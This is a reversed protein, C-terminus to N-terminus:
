DKDELDHALPANKQVFEVIPTPDPLSHPHHNQGPKLILEVHGGLSEYLEKFPAWNVAGPVVDDADGCILLFSVGRRILAECGARNNNPQPEYASAEEETLGYNDLLAKWSNDDRFGAVRGEPWSHFNLVPNDLYLTAVQDPYAFAWQTTYLGGRSMGELNARQALKFEKRLYQYFDEWLQVSKPSGLLPASDVWVVTYGLKLMAVDFQPEHGFFRARWIWPAGPAQEQPFVIKAARNQFKFDHIEFGFWEGVEGPYTSVTPAQSEDASQAYTVVSFSTVSLTLTITLLLISAQIYKM